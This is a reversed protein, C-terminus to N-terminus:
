YKNFLSMNGKKDFAILSYNKYPQGKPAMGPSMAPMGPAALGLAGSPPNALFNLIDQEPIHGEFVYDGIVATHCSGLVAPVGLKKRTGKLDFPHKIAVEHGAEEMIEVWKACCGCTKSKYVTIMEASASSVTVALILFLYKKM